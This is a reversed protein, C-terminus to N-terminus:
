TRTAGGEEDEYVPILDMGMPSKGPKNRIYTPDMPARWYKIKRQKQDTGGKMEGKMSVEQVSDTRSVQSGLWFIFLAAVLLVVALGIKKKTSM